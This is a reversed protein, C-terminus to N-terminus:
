VPVLLKNLFKSALVVGKDRGIGKDSLDGPKESRSEGLSSLKRCRDRM